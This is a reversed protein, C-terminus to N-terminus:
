LIFSETHIDTHIYEFITMHYSNVLLKVAHLIAHTLNVNVPSERPGRSDRPRSFANNLTKLRVRNVCM